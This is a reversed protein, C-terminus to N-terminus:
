PSPPPVTGGRMEDDSLDRQRLRAACETWTSPEGPELGLSVTFTADGTAPVILDDPPAPLPGARQAAAVAEGDLGSVGSSRVVDVALVVGRPDVRLRLVVPARSIVHAREPTWRATIADSVQEFFAAHALGARSLTTHTDDCLPPDARPPAAGCAALVVLAAGKM